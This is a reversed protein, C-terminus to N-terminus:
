IDGPIIDIKFYNNWQLFKVFLKLNTTLKGSNLESIFKAFPSLEVAFITLKPSIVKMLWDGILKGAKMKVIELGSEMQIKVDNDFSVNFFNNRPVRRFPLKEVMNM